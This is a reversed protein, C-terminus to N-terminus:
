QFFEIVFDLIGRVDAVTTNNALLNKNISELKKLLELLQYVYRDEAATLRLTDIVLSDMRSLSEVIKQYRLLM